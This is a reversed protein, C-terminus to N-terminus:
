GKFFRRKLVEFWRDFDNLFSPDVHEFATQCEFNGVCKIRLCEDHDYHVNLRALPFVTKTGDERDITLKM